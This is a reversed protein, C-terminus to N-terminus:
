RWLPPLPPLRVNGPRTAIGLWAVTERLEPPLRLRPAAVDAGALRMARDLLKQWRNGELPFRRLEISAERAIGSKAKALDIAAALGGLEDVLGAQKADSGSFVRGRAADDLRAGDLKRADRVQSTFAAYITDLEREIAARQAVTPPQFTSYLGANTGAQLREVSIGLSKLLDAAVPWMGFVGISGTITTAQAVIADARVAALYGGSAAVDGMSVVVPKGSARARAVADAMADAAPYTGGPSDIRFVIAKVDRASAASELADVVDEANALSEEDFPSDSARGSVIAGSARVLAITSGASRRPAEAAYDDLSVTNRTSARQWAADWADARYGLRDVLNEDLARRPGFPASDVLQRLKAPELKREGAVDAIFQEYLSDILRQLNRRAPTTFGKETFSDPASKYEHRKGGEIQVGLRDLGTKLFPTEIAIGAVGFSGSPQLWIEDLASALYYDGFREGSAGLSEAFGVAFKGKARLRLIADRLEQVRALGGQEDGIEVFLGKVRSDDAARWLTELTDTMDRSGRWLGGLLDTSVMEPPLRRLDLSVVMSGPLARNSSSPIWIMAAVALGGITLLTLAGITAFLGVLYRRM